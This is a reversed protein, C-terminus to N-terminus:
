GDNLDDCLKQVLDGWNDIAFLVVLAYMTYPAEEVVLVRRKSRIHTSTIVPVDIKDHSM